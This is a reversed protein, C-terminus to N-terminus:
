KGAAPQAVATLLVLDNKVSTYVVAIEQNPQLDAADIDRQVVVLKGGRTQVTATTLKSTGTLKLALSRAFQGGPGRPKITLTTRNVREVTGHAIALRSGDAAAALGAVTLLFAGALAIRLSKM